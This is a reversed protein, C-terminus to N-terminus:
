QKALGVVMEVLQDPLFPKLVFQNAGAELCQPRCDAGSTMVVPIHSIKREQRIQRVLDITEYGQVRVDMLVVDPVVERVAPMIDQYAPTLIVRHHELEFLIRLLRGMDRDDDVVLITSM